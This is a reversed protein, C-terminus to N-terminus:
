CCWTGEELCSLELLLTEKPLCGLNFSIIFILISINMCSEVDLLTPEALLLIPKIHSDLRIDNALGLVANVISLRVDAHHVSHALSAEAAYGVHGQKLVLQAIGRGFVVADLFVGAVLARKLELQLHARDLTLLGVTVM